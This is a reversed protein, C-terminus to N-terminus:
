VAGRSSAVPKRRKKPPTVSAEAIRAELEAFRELSCRRVDALEKRAEDRERVAVALRHELDRMEQETIVM